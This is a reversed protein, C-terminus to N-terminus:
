ADIRGAEDGALAVRDRRHVGVGQGEVVADRVAHVLGEHLEVVVIV